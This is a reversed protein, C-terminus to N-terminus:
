SCCRPAEPLLLNGRQASFTLQTRTWRFGEGQGQLDAKVVLFVQPGLDGERGRQEGPHCFGLDRRRGPDAEHEEAAGVQELHTRM